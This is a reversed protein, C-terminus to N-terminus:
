ARKSRRAHRTGRARGSSGWGSSTSLACRRRGILEHVRTPEARGVVRILDIERAEITEAALRRTEENILIRTGYRKNAGELRSALNVTDGIVTYSRANESGISGVTADGTAIGMRVNVVPINKRIGLVEPLLSRFVNMQSQQALAAYCALTAQEGAACFPPGWFAMVSDGIYKDLIGQEARIAEAMLSFYRNMLRVVATPTLGECVSTFGELDSFFVSMTQREGGDAFQRPGQLLSQVVRPDVYKGFMQTIMEKQKLEGVMHNFSDALQGIEDTTRIEIHVDLNGTRIANTLGLLERVPRVLSRTLVGALLLGLTCAVLTVLWILWRTRHELAETLEASERTGRHLLQTVTRVRRNLEARHEDIREQAAVLARDDGAKLEVLYKEFSAHLKARAPAIHSIENKITSFRGVQEHAARVQPLALATEAVAVARELRQNTCLRSVRYTMLRREAREPYATRIKEQVPRLAEPSCDGAEKYLAEAQADGGVGTKPRAHLVREIQIVERLSEVRVDSMRQDLALYHDSLLTLQEGVRRFNLSTLLSVGIMLALLAISIGFIKVSIPWRVVKPSFPSSM